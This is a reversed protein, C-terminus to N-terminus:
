PCQETGITLTGVAKADPGNMWAYPAIGESDLDDRRAFNIRCGTQQAATSEDGLELLFRIVSLANKRVEVDDLSDLGVAPSAGVAMEYGKHSWSPQSVVGPYTNGLVPDGLALRNKAIGLITGKEEKTTDPTTEFGLMQTLHEVNNNNLGFKAIVNRVQDPTVDAPNNRVLVDLDERSIPVREEEIVRNVIQVGRAEGHTSAYENIMQELRQLLARKRDNLGFLAKRAKAVEITDLKDKAKEFLSKEIDDSVELDNVRVSKRQIWCSGLEGGCEGVKAWENVPGPVIPNCVRVLGTSFAGYKEPFPLTASGVSLSSYRDNTICEEASGIDQTVQNRVALDTLENFAFSSTVKGFGCQPDHGTIHICIENYGERAATQVTQQVYKGKEVNLYQRGDSNPNTAVFLPPLGLQDNKLYVTFKLPEKHVGGLQQPSGLLSESSPYGTGAYIHYILILGLM